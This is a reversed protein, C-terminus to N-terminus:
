VGQGHRRVQIGLHHFALICIHLLVLLHECTSTITECVDRRYHLLGLHLLEIVIPGIQVSLILDHHHITSAM